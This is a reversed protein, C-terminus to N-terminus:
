LQTVTYTLQGNTGGTGAGYSGAVPTTTNKYSFTWKAEQRVLKAVVGIAVSTNGSAATATATLTPHALTGNVYGLTTSGLASTTIGIETWPITDGGVSTLAGLSAANLSVGTGFNSFIRVTVAGAGAASEGGTGATPITGDGLGLAPVTFTIKDVTAIDTAAVANGTGIRIHLVAPIKIEFDLKASATGGSVAATNTRSEAHAFMPAVLAAAISSVLLLKKM